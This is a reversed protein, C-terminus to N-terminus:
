GAGPATSRSSSSAPMWQQQQVQQLRPGGLDWFTLGLFTLEAPSQATPPRQAEQPPPPQSGRHLSAVPGETGRKCSPRLPTSLKARSGQRLSDGLGEAQTNGPAVTVIAQKGLAQTQLTNQADQLPVARCRKM